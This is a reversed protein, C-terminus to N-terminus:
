VTKCLKRRGWSKTKKHCDECLTIGNEIDWFPQYTVTLRLFTEFDEILSFQNYEQLFTDVLKALQKKHHPHIYQGKNFCEQCVYGDRRFIQQRWQKWQESSKLIAFLRRRAESYLSPKKRIKFRKSLSINKRHEETFIKGLTYKNGTSRKRIKERLEKSVPHGKKFETKLSAHNGKNKKSIKDKTEQSHHQGMIWVDKGKNAKGIKKKTEESHKFGKPRAM